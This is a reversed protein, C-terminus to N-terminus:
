AFSSGCEHIQRIEMASDPDFAEGFPDSLKAVNDPPKLKDFEKEKITIHVDVVNDLGFRSASSDEQGFAQGICSALILAYTFNNNLFLFRM